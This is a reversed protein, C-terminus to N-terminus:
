NLGSFIPCRTLKGCTQAWSKIRILHKLYIKPTRKVALNMQKVEQLVHKKKIITVESYFFGFLFDEAILHCTSIGFEGQGRDASCCWKEAGWQVRAFWQQFTLCPKPELWWKTSTLPVKTEIITLVHNLNSKDSQSKFKWVLMWVETFNKGNISYGSEWICNRLWTIMKEHGM